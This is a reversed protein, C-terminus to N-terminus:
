EITRRWFGRGHTAIYLTPTSVNDYNIVIDDVAPNGVLKVLNADNSVTEIDGEVDKWHSGADRSVYALRPTGVGSTYYITDPQLVSRDANIRADPKTPYAPVGPPSIPVLPLVGLLHREGIYAWAFASGAVTAVIEYRTPNVTVDVNSLVGPGPIGALSVYAWLGLSFVDNYYVTSFDGYLEATFLRPNTLRPTPDILVPASKERTLGIDVGIHSTGGDYSLYRTYPGNSNFGIISTDDPSISVHRGDGGFVLTLAPDKSINGHVVGNDQLGAVFVDPNSHSSALAGQPTSYSATHAEGLELNNLGLLNGGDDVTRGAVDYFYYGGDNAIHLQTGDGSFLMFNYDSHGGDFITATGPASAKTIEAAKVLGFFVHRPDKPDCAIASVHIGQHDPNVAGDNSFIPEWESGRNISRYVGNLTQHKGMVLAYLYNDNSDCAALSIRAKSGTMETGFTEWTTAYTTSRYVGKNKVGAYWRKSDGTDQVVDTAEVGSLRSFWNQGFDFSQWIGDSTAAVLTAGTTDGRDAVIRTVRTNKNAPQTVAPQWSSGGDTSYHIGDGTGWGQAGTGIVINNSNGKMIAFSGMIHPSFSDSIPVWRVLYGSENIIAKWLGGDMAGAWLVNRGQVNDWAWSVQALRGSQHHETTSLIGNGIQVWKDAAGATLPLALVGLLVISAILHAHPRRTFM